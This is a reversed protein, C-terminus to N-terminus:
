SLKKIKKLDGNLVIPKMGKVEEWVFFKPIPNFLFIKKGLWFAVCMEAFTNPGIYNVQGDKEYNLVLIADGEKIKNFHSKMFDYKIKARVRGMPTKPVQWLKERVMTLGKPVLVQHGMKILKEEAEEMKDLFRMSACITIIM